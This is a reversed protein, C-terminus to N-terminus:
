SNNLTQNIEKEALYENAAELREHEDVSDGEYREDSLPKDSKLGAEVEVENPYPSENIEPKNVRKKM